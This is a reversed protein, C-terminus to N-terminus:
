QTASGERLSTHWCANQVCQKKVRGKSLLHTILHSKTMSYKWSTFTNYRNLIYMSPTVILYINQAYHILIMAICHYSQFIKINYFRNSQIIWALLKKLSSFKWVLVKKTRNYWYVHALNCDRTLLSSRVDEKKVEWEMNITLIALEVIDFCSSSRLWFRRTWM